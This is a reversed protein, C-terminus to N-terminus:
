HLASSITQFVDSLKSGVTRIEYTAILASMAGLLAYEVIVGATQDAWMSYLNGLPTSPLSVVNGPEVVFAFGCAEETRWILRMPLRQKTKKVHLYTEYPLAVTNPMTLRIGSRSANRILGDLMSYGSNFEVSAGLYTRQRPHARREVLM